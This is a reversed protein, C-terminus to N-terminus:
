NAAMSMSNTNSRNPKWGYNRLKNSNVGRSSVGRMGRLRENEEALREREGEMYKIYDIASALVTAKSPKPPGTLEGTDRQPLTPVARRLRELEANLGERYKREVQNHPLRRSPRSRSVPPSAGSTSNAPDSAGRDLRPRGRKRLVKTPTEEPEEPSQRKISSRRSTDNSSREIDELQCSDGCLSPTPSDDDRTFDDNFFSNNYTQYEPLTPLPAQYSSPSITGFPNVGTGNPASSRRFADQVNSTGFVSHHKPAFMSPATVATASEPFEMSSMSRDVYDTNLYDDLKYDANSSYIDGLYPRDHADLYSMSETETPSYTPLGEPTAFPNFDVAM